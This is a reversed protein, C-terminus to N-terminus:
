LQTQETYLKLYDDVYVNILFEDKLSANIFYPNSEDYSTLLDNYYPISTYIGIVDNDQRNNRLVLIFRFFTNEVPTIVKIDSLIFDIENQLYIGNLSFLNVNETEYSDINPYTNQLNPLTIYEM